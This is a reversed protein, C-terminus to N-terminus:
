TPIMTSGDNAEVVILRSGIRLIIDPQAYSLSPWFWYEPEQVPLGLSPGHLVLRDSSGLSRASNFWDVLVESAGAVLLTGFVTSTLIDERRELDSASSDLKGYLEAYLM